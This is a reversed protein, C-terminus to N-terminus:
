QFQSAGSATVNPAAAPLVDQLVQGDFSTIRVTVPGDGTGNPDVFYNYDQRPADVWSGNVLLELKTVPVRTNEVQVAIWFANTGSKYRYVVNGAVDCPVYTWTINAVGDSQPALMGFAEPSLDLHSAECTPCQDVIRVTISNGSPGRISACAGCPAANMYQASDMAAVMLDNPSPDFSCNGAGNASTYFTATGTQPAGFPV